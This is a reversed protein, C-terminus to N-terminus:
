TPQTTKSSCDCNTIFVPPKACVSSVAESVKSLAVKESGPVGPPLATIVPCDTKFAVFEATMSLAPSHVRVPVEPDVFTITSPDDVKVVDPGIVAVVDKILISVANKVIELPPVSCSKDDPISAVPDVIM